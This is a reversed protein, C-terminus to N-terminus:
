SLKKTKSSKNIKKGNSLLNLKNYNELNIDVKLKKISPEETIKYIDEISLLHIM